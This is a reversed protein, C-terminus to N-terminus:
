VNELEWGVFEEELDLTLADGMFDIGVYYSLLLSTGLVTSEDFAGAFAEYTDDDVAREAFAVAYAVLAADAEDLADYDRESVALIEERTLVDDLAILVHQHWEYASDLGRGCGLIALERQRESLGTQTWLDAAYRRYAALLPPNNALVRHTHRVEDWPSEGDGAGTADIFPNAPEMSDRYEEPVDDRGLYPLRAM